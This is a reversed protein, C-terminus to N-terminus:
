IDPTESSANVMSVQGRFDVNDCIRLKATIIDGVIQAGNRMELLSAAQINGTVNGSVVVTNSEMAGVTCVASNAIELYGTAQIDGEFKGAIVLNDTFSLEGSFETEKGFVTKNTRAAAM